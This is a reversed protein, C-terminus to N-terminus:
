ITNQDYLLEYGIEPLEINKVRVKLTNTKFLHFLELQKNLIYDVKYEGFGPSLLLNAVDKLIKTLPATLVDLTAFQLSQTSIRASEINSILEPYTIMLQQNNEIVFYDIIISDKNDFKKIKM